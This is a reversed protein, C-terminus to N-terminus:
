NNVHHTVMPTNLTINSFTYGNELGYDIIMPLAELVKENSGFDHMLVVNVKDKSLGAVVNNYMDEGTRAGGADGSSINWDFYRYGSNVVLETLRTMIGPNYDSVTNSSGGPFRTITANYGTSALIKEQLKTINQMYTSESEYITSYDHSYGHIGITHGENYERKVLEEGESGYNLIFFTAKVNREKLIDLVKPTINTSPGDDFTLYIVGRGNGEDSNAQKLVEERVTVERTEIAENGSSDTVKYTITYKGEKSTDVNGIITIKDTIDGDKEDIATAGEEEYDNNIYVTQSKKGNLEIEPPVDDIIKVNRIIEINNGSLDEVYYKIKFNNEDINQKETKVKDTIDGDYNDIAKFGPEEYEATYSQNFNIDGKLDIKPKTTDVVKVMTEKKYEGTITDLVYEIKYEGIKKYNIEGRIQIDDTVDKFHYKAKAKEVRQDTNVEINKMTGIYIDPKEFVFTVLFIVCFIGMCIALYKLLGNKNKVIFIILGILIALIAAIMEVVYIIINIGM